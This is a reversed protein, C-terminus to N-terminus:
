QILHQNTQIVKEKNMLHHKWQNASEGSAYTERLYKLVAKSFAKIHFCIPKREVQFYTELNNLVHFPSM